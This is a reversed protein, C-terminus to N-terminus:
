ADLLAYIFANNDIPKLLSELAIFINAQNMAM